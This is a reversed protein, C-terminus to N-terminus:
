ARDADVRAKGDSGALRWVMLAGVVALAVLAQRQTAPDLPDRWGRLEMRIRTLLSGEYADYFAREQADHAAVVDADDGLGMPIPGPDVPLRHFPDAAYNVAKVGLSREGGTPWLMVLAAAVVSIM